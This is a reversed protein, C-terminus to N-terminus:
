PASQSRVITLPPLLQSSSPLKPESSMQVRTEGFMGAFLWHSLHLCLYRGPWMNDTRLSMEVDGAQMCCRCSAIM